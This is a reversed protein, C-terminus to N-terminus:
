VENQSLVRLVVHPERSVLNLLVLAPGRPMRDGREWHRLTELSVGLSAAFQMPTMNAKQRVAKVDISTSPKHVIVKTPKGQAHHIAEQLGQQISEFAESM